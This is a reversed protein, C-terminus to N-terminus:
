MAVKEFRIAAAIGEYEDLLPSHAVRDVTGGAAIVDDAMEEALDVEAVEGSCHPCQGPAGEVTRESLLRCQNCRVGSRRFNRSMYLVQVARENVARLTAALGVSGKGGIAAQKVAERVGLREKFHEHRQLHEIVKRIVVSEPELMDLHVTIFVKDLVRKPLFRSFQSIVEPQGALVINKILFEDVLAEVNKAVEKHHRDYHDIVHRQFRPQSWGGAKHYSPVDDIINIREDVGALRLEYVRARSSDVMVLLLREYEDALTILQKLHPRVDVVLQDSFEANAKFIEFFGDGSCAFFALGRYESDIEGRMQDQLYEEIRDRDRQLSRIVDHHAHGRFRDMVATWENKFFLRARKKHFEDEWHANVYQSVFQHEGPTYKRLKEVIENFDM